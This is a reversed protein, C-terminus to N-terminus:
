DEISTLKWSFYASEISLILPNQPDDLVIVDDGRNTKLHLSRLLMPIGQVTCRFREPGVIEWRVTADNRMLTDVSIWAKGSGKLERFAKKSIWLECRNDFDTAMPEWWPDISTCDDLSSLTQIGQDAGIVAQEMAYGFSIGNPWLDRITITFDERVKPRLPHVVYAEYNLRMNAKLEIQSRELQTNQAFATPVFGLFVFAILLLSYWHAPM